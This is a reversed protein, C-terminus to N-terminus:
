ILHSHDSFNTYFKVVLGMCTAISSPESHVLLPNAVALRFPFPFVLVEKARRMLPLLPLYMFASFPGRAELKFGLPRFGLAELAAIDITYRASVRSQLRSDTIETYKTTPMKSHGFRTVCGSNCYLRGYKRPASLDRVQAM